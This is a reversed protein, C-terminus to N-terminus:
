LIIIVSLAAVLAAGLYQMKIYSKNLSKEKNYYYAIASFAAAILSGTFVKYNFSNYNMILATMSIIFIIVLLSKHIFYEGKKFRAENYVLIYFSNIVSPVLLIILPFGAAESIISWGCMLKILTNFVHWYPTLNIHKKIVFTYMINLLLLGALTLSFLSNIFISSSLGLLGLALMITSAQKVSVEGTVLPANRKHIVRHKRDTDLDHLDNIIYATSYTFTFIIVGFIFRLLNFERTLAYALASGLTFLAITHPAVRMLRIIKNM